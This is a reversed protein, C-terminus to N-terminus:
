RTEAGRRRADIVLAAVLKRLQDPRLWEFRDVHFMHLAIGDAYADVRGAAALMARIKAVMAARDASPMPRGARPKAPRGPKFGRARLHDLVRKRGTFDLEGSSRVRAITWLMERYTEDDLALQKKAIHIQALERNRVNDAAQPM